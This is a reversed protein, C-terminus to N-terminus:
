SLRGSQAKRLAAGLARLFLDPLRSDAARADGERARPRGGISRSVYDLWRRAWGRDMKRGASKGRVSRRSLVARAGGLGTCCGSRVPFWLSEDGVRPGGHRAFGHRGAFVGCGLLSEWTACDRPQHRCTPQPESAQGGCSAAALALLASAVVLVLLFSYSWLGLVARDSYSRYRCLGVVFFALGILRGLRAHFFARARAASSVM